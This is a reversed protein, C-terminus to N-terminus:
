LCNYMDLTKQDNRSANRFVLEDVVFSLCSKQLPPPAQAAWTGRAAFYFVISSALRNGTPVSAGGMKRVQLVGFGNM